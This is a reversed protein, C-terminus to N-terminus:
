WHTHYRNTAGLTGSVHNLILQITPHPSFMCMCGIKAQISLILSLSMSVVDEAPLCLLRAHLRPPDSLDNTRKGTQLSDTRPIPSSDEHEFRGTLGM